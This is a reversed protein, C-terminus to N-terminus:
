SEAHALRTPDEVYVYLVGTRTDNTAKVPYTEARILRGTNVEPIRRLQKVGM